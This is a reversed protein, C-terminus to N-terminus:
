LGGFIVEAQEPFFKLFLIAGPKLKNLGETVVIDTYGLRELDSAVSLSRLGEQCVFLIKADPSSFKSRITSIFDPNPKTFALGYLNGPMSTHAARRIMTGVDNDTNLIFAPIHISGPIRARDYQTIDRIDVITYGDKDVAEKAEDWTLIDVARPSVVAVRRQSQPRAARARSTLRLSSGFVNKCSEYGQLPLLRSAEEEFAIGRVNNSKNIVWRPKIDERAAWPGFFTVQRADQLRRRLSPLLHSTATRRYDLTSNLTTLDHLSAGFAVLRFPTDPRSLVDDGLLSTNFMWAPLVEQVAGMQAVYTLNFEFARGSRRTMNFRTRVFGDYLSGYYFTNAYDTGRVRMCLVKKPGSGVSEDFPSWVQPFGHFGHVGQMNVKESDVFAARSHAHLFVQLFGFLYRMESDGMLLVRQKRHFCRLVDAPQVSKLRCAHPRWHQDKWYGENGSSRLLAPTCWPLSRRLADPFYPQPSTVLLKRLAVLHYNQFGQNYVKSLATRTQCANSFLLHLSLLYPGPFPATFCVQHSSSAPRYTVQAALRLDTWGNAADDWAPAETVRATRRFRRWRSETDEAGVGSDSSSGSTNNSNTISTSSSPSQTSLSSTAGLPQSSSRNALTDFTLLAVFFARQRCGVDFADGATDFATVSFCTRQNALAREAGAGEVEVRGFRVVGTVSWGEGARREEEVGCEWEAGEEKGRMAEEGEEAGEGEGRMAEEGEEAGEGEGRMAEEGEEAGEGEGRMAEEGEEAGEGEGRTAEEGARTDASKKTAENQAMRSVSERRAGGDETPRAQQETILLGAAGRDRQSPAAWQSWYLKVPKDILAAIGGPSYSLVAHFAVYVSLAGLPLLAVGLSRVGVRRREVRTASGAAVGAEM